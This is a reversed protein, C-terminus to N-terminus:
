YEVLENFHSRLNEKARDLYGHVQGISCRMISAIEKYTMLKGEERGYRLEIVQKQNESLKDVADELLGFWTEREQTDDIEVPTDMTLSVLPKRQKKLNLLENRLIRSLWYKWNSHPFKERLFLQHLKLFLKQLEEQPDEKMSVVIRELDQQHPALLGWIIEGQEKANATKYRNILEFAVPNETQQQYLKILQHLSFGVLSAGGAVMLVTFVISLVSFIM